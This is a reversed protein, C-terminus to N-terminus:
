VPELSVHSMGRYLQGSSVSVQTRLVALFADVEDPERLTSVIHVLRLLQRNVRLGYIDSVLGKPRYSLQISCRIGLGYAPRELRGLGVM